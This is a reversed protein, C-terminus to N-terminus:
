RTGGNPWVGYKKAIDNKVKTVNSPTVKGSNYLKSYAAEAAAGADYAKQRPNATPKNVKAM